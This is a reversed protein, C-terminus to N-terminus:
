VDERDGFDYNRQNKPAAPVPADPDDNIDYGPSLGHRRRRAKFRDLSPDFANEIAGRGDQSVPVQRNREYEAALDFPNEGKQFRGEFHERRASEAPTEDRPLAEGLSAVQADRAPMHTVAKGVPRGDLLFTTHIEVPRRPRAM